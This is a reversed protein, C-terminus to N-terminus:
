ISVNTNAPYVIYFRRAAHGRTHTYRYRQPGHVQQFLAALVSNFIIRCGRSLDTGEGGGKELALLLVEAVGRFMVVLLKPERIM